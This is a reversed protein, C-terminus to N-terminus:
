SAESPERPRSDFGHDRMWGVYTRACRDLNELEGGGRVPSCIEYNALGDFGGDRLGAFFASYDIFGAGFEVARVLDPGAPEYNVLEPRYRFRLLRVYDANTTMATFPAATRAAEYMDEGRLAPSWADFALRGNPRDIDHLLELLAATHVGIDHHNQVAVMMGQAAARDCVERLGAVTQRWAPQPGIAPSEYATFVRIVEAGLRAGARCLAEVYGIQMELLPVEAAVAAGFDTYAAVAACRVGAAALDDRLAAILDDDADLPSLHPRKGALMVADFGLEGARRVFRRLDLAAQGWLGAYSVSFLGLRM